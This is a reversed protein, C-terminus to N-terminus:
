NRLWRLRNPQNMLRGWLQEPPVELVDDVEAKTLGWSGSRLEGAICWGDSASEDLCARCRASWRCPSCRRMVASLCADAQGMCDTYTRNPSSCLAISLHMRVCLRAEAHTHVGCTCICMTMYTPLSAAEAVSYTM